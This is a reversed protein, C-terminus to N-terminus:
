WEKVPDLVIRGNEIYIDFYCNKFQKRISAPIYVAGDSIFVRKEGEFPDFVIKGNEMKIGFRYGRFRKRIEIPIWIRGDKYIRRLKKEM